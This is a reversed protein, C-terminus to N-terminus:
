YLWQNQFKNIEFQQKVFISILLIVCLALGYESIFNGIFNGITLISTDLMEVILPNTLYVYMNATTGVFISLVIVNFVFDAM